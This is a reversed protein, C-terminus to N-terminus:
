GGDCERRRAPEAQRPRSTRGYENGEREDLDGEARSLGWRRTFPGGGTPPPDRPAACVLEGHVLRHLRIGGGGRRVLACRGDGDILLVERLDRRDDAVTRV